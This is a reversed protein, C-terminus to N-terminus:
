SLCMSALSSTTCAGAEDSCSQGTRDGLALTTHCKRCSVVCMFDNREYFIALAEGRVQRCTRLLSPQQVQLQCTKANITPPSDKPILNILGPSILAYEWIKLRLEAPLSLLRSGAGKNKKKKTARKVKTAITALKVKSAIAGMAAFSYHREFHLRLGSLTRHPTDTHELCRTAGTTQHEPRNVHSLHPLRVHSTM